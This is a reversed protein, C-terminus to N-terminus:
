RQVLRTRVGRTAASTAVALRRRNPVHSRQTLATFGDKEVADLIEGYLAFAVGIGARARPSLMGIGPQASRYLARTLAVLHALARVIRQDTRGTRRSWRLLDEDVGFAALDDAPLYIRDRDLDEGVDRIFNTLQFAEGLAAAAPRADEVDVVTGLVPLMQLGIVAASGYMYTRLQDMDAYRSRYLPSTPVDMQMSTMFATFYETPIDYKGATDLLAALVLSRDPSGLDVTATRHDLGALLAEEISWLATTGEAVADPDDRDAIMDVDIIDDVMRAFAYLAHVAPRREAPLLRTALFYTKGHEAAISRCLRYAEALTPDM